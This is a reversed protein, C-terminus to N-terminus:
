LRNSFCSVVYFMVNKIKLIIHRQQQDKQLDPFCEGHTMKDDHTSGFGRRCGALHFDMRRPCPHLLLPQSVQGCRDWSWEPVGRHGCAGAEALM